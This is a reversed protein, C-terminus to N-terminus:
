SSPTAGPCSDLAPLSANAGARAAGTLVGARIASGDRALADVVRDALEPAVSLVADQGRRGGLAGQDSAQVDQVTVDALLVTSPCQKTSLWVEIRQGRHLGPADGAAFPVSLTTLAPAARLAAAPLLEGRSLPRDLQKGIVAAGDALYVGSGRGPLRVQVLRVDDARLTVGASLDRTVALMRYSDDAGSVVKAGVLVSALVLVIGAVLRLDLWGPTKIRRPVPSPPTM